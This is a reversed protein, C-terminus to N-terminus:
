DHRPSVSAEAGAINVSPSESEVAQGGPVGPRQRDTHAVVVVVASCSSSSSGYAVVDIVVFAVVAAGATQLLGVSVCQSLSRSLEILVPETRSEWCLLAM